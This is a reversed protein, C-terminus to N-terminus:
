CIGSQLYEQFLIFYCTDRMCNLHMETDIIAEIHGISIGYETM